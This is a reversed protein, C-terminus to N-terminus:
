KIKFSQSFYVIIIALLLVWKFFSEMFLIVFLGMLLLVVNIINELSTKKRSPDHESELLSEEWDGVGGSMKTIKVV